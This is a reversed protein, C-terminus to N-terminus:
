KGRGMREWLRGRGHAEEESKEGNGEGIKERRRKKGM